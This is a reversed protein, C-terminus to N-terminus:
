PRAAPVPPKAAPATTAPAPNAPPGAQGASQADAASISIGFLQWSNSVGQYLIEFNVPVPNTALSGAVDLMGQDNVKAVTLHPDLLVVQSLDVGKARIPAFIDALAAATNKDRFGPAGLDRLVTYNGTLNAQHLAVITNRLLTIVLAQDSPSLNLPAPAATTPAPLAAGKNAPATASPTAPKAPQAQALEITRGPAYDAADSPQPLDGVTAGISILFAGAIATIM